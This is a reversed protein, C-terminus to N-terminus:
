ECHLHALGGTPEGSCRCCSHGKLPWRLIWLGSLGEASHYGGRSPGSGQLLVVTLSPTISLDPQASMVAVNWRVAVARMGGSAKVEMAVILHSDWHSELGGSLSPWRQRGGSILTCSYSGQM